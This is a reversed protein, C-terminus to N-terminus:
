QWDAPLTMRLAYPDGAPDLVFQLALRGDSSVLRGQGDHRLLAAARNGYSVRVGDGFRAVAMRRGTSMEYTVESGRQVPLAAAAAFAARPAMVEVRQSDRADDTAFAASTAAALAAVGVQRNLTNM